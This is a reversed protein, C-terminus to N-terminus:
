LSSCPCMNKLTYITYHQTQKYEKIPVNYKLIYLIFLNRLAYSVTYNYIYTNMCKM